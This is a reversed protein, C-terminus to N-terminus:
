TSATCRIGHTSPSRAKRCRRLAWRSRWPSGAMPPPSPREKWATSRSNCRPAPSPPARNQLRLRMSPRRGAKRQANAASTCQAYIDRRAQGYPQMATVLHEDLYAPTATVLLPVVSETGHPKPSISLTVEDGLRMMTFSLQGGDALLGALQSILGSGAVPLIAVQAPNTAEPLSEVSASDEQSEEGEVDDADEAQDEPRPDPQPQTLVNPHFDPVEVTMARQDVFMGELDELFARYTSRNAKKDPHRASIALYEPERDTGKVQTYLEAARAKDEPLVPAHLDSVAPNATPHLTM